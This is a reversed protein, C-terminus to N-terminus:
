SGTRRPTPIRWGCCRCQAPFFCSMPTRAQARKWTTSRAGLTQREMGSGTESTLWRLADPEMPLASQGAYIGYYPADLTNETYDTQPLTVGLGEALARALAVVSREGMGYMLIDAGSDVLISRRVKNDWYDYHACRRLSAELGGILIPIDGYAERVRNCYVITARDPRLGAKFGPSYYDESRRKKAATYHAVM